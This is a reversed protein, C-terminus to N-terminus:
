QLVGAATLERVEEDTMGMLQRFVYDNQEGVAPTTRYIKPPTASLRWPTQYIDCTDAHPSAHHYIFDREAFQPHHDREYASFLAACPVGETELANLVAQRERQGCWDGLLEDLEAVHKRRVAASNQWRLDQRDMACCLGQWQQENTVSIAVWQEIGRTAYFNHPAYEVHSNGQIGPSINQLAYQMIMEGLTAASCEIQSVDVFQGQGSQQRHVLATLVGIVGQISM